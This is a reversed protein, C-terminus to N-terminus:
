DIINELHLDVGSETVSILDIRPQFDSFEQHECLWANFGNSLRKSKDQSIAELGGGYNQNKRYKVEILVVYGQSVTIIDLEYFRSRANRAIIKHGSIKLFEVAADEARRGIATTNKM